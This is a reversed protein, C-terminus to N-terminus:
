VAFEPPLLIEFIAGFQPATVVFKAAVPPEGTPMVISEDPLISVAFIVGAVTVFIVGAPAGVVRPFVPVEGTPMVISEDPL